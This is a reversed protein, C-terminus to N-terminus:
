IHLHRAYAHGREQVHTKRVVEDVAIQMWAVNEDVGIRPIPTQIKNRKKKRKGKKLIRPRASACSPIIYAGLMIEYTSGRYPSQSTYM